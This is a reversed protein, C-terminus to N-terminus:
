ARMMFQRMKAAMAWEGAQKPCTTAARALGMRQCALAVDEAWPLQDERVVLASPGAFHESAEILPLVSAVFEQPCIKKTDFRRFDAVWCKPRAAALWAMMKEVQRLDTESALRGCVTMVGVGASIDFATGGEDHELLLGM